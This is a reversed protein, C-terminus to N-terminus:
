LVPGPSLDIRSICFARLLISLRRHNSHRVSDDHSVLYQGTGGYIVYDSGPYRLRYLSQGRTTRGLPQLELGPLILFKRKQADDLGVTPGM